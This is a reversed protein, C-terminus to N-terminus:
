NAASSLIALHSRGEGEEQEGEGGATVGGAL